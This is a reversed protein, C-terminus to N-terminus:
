GRRASGSLQQCVEKEASRRAKAADEKKRFSGLFRNKGDFGIRAVWRKHQADWSVGRVGSTNNKNISERPKPRHSRNYKILRERASIALLCGCSKTKGSRLRSCPVVVEAGCDCRCLWSAGGHGIPPNVFDAPRIVLLNGFRQGSLDHRIDKRSCGCSRTGNRTATLANQLVSLENGCDCRCIWRRTKAGGPSVYVEADERLVTLRGFRQGTLDRKAM